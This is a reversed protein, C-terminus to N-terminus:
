AKILQHIAIYSKKWIEQNFNRQEESGAQRLKHNVLDILASQRSANQFPNYLVLKQFDEISLHEACRTFLADLKPSNVGLCEKEHEVLVVFMQMIRQGMHSTYLGSQDIPFALEFLKIPDMESNRLAAVFYINRCEEYVWDKYVSDSELQKTMVDPQLCAAWGKILFWNSTELYYGYEDIAARCIQQWICEVWPHDKVASTKALQVVFESLNRLPTSAFTQKLIHDQIRKRMSPSQPMDALLKLYSGDKRNELWPTVIRKWQDETTAVLILGITSSSCHIKAQNLSRCLGEDSLLPVITEIVVQSQKELHCKMPAEQSDLESRTPCAISVFCDNVCQSVEGFKHMYTKLLDAYAEPEMMNKLLLLVHGISKSEDRLMLILEEQIKSLTDERFGASFIAGASILVESAHLILNDCMNLTDGQYAALVQLSLERAKKNGKELAGGHYLDHLQGVMELDLM